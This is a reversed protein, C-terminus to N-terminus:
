PLFQRAYIGSVACPQSVSPQLFTLTGSGGSWQLVAPSSVDFAFCFSTRFRFNALNPSTAEYWDDTKRGVTVRYSGAAQSIPAYVGLVDCPISSPSSFQISGTYGFMELVAREFSAFEFCSRSEVFNGYGIVEYLNSARRTVSDLM